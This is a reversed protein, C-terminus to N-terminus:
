DFLSPSSQLSRYGVYIILIILIVTTYISGNIGYQGGSLVQNSSNIGNIILFNDGAPNTLQIGLKWLMQVGSVIFISTTTVYLYGLWLNFLITNIILLSVNFNPLQFNILIDIAQKVEPFHRLEFYSAIIAVIIIALTVTYKKAIIPLTLGRLLLEESFSQLLLYILGGFSAITISGLTLTIPTTTIIMLIIVLILITGIILGGFIQQFLNYKFIGLRKKVNYDPIQEVVKTWIIVIFIILFYWVLEFLYSIITRGAAITAPDNPFFLPIIMRIIAVLSILGWVMIWTFFHGRNPMLKLLEKM